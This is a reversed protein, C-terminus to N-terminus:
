GTLVRQEFADRLLATVPGVALERGDVEVVPAVGRISGALLVEDAELLETVAGAACRTLPVGLEACLELLM